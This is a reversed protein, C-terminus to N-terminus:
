DPAGPPAASQPSATPPTLTAPAAPTASTPTSGTAGLASQTVSSDMPALLLQGAQQDLRCVFHRQFTDGLLDDSQCDPPLVYCEINKATYHGVTVSDLVMIKATVQHGDAVTIPATPTQDTFKLHLANATNASLQVGTAGSDWVMTDKVKGNIVAQILPPSGEPAPPLAVINNAVDQACLRVFKLDDQFLGSPGLRAQVKATKNYQEIATALTSDNTIGAYAFALPEVKVALDMALNIYAMHIAGYVNQARQADRLRTVEWSRMHQLINLQEGTENISAVWANRQDVPAGDMKGKQGDLDTYRKTASDYQDDMTQLAQIGHEITYQAQHSVRDNDHVQSQLSRLRRVTNHMEIEAPLVLYFGMQTLGRNAFVTKPDNADAAPGPGPTAKAAGDAAPPAANVSPQGLPNEVAAASDNQSLMSLPEVLLGQMASPDAPSLELKGQQQDLRSVFHRQFTDGLLDEVSKGADAPLVACPVNFVTFTGLRISKLVLRKVKVTRGDAVTAEGSPTQDTIVLGLKDATDASLVVESAGSDWIPSDTFSGNIVVRVHPEGDDTAPLLQPPHRMAEQACQRVLQLDDSYGASPGLRVSTTGKANAANLGAVFQKDSALRNYAAQVSEAETGVDMTLDIYDMRAAGYDADRKELDVLEANRKDIADQVADLRKMTDNWTEVLSNYNADNLSTSKLREAMQVYQDAGTLYQNSLADLAERDQHIQYEAQRQDWDANSVKLKLVRLQRVRTHIDAEFSFVLYSGSRTLGHSAALADVPSAGSDAPSDGHGAYPLALTVILAAVFLRSGRKRMNTSLTLLRQGCKFGFGGLNVAPDGM